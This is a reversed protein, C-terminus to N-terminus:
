CFLYVQVLGRITVGSSPLLSVDASPHNDVRAKSVRRTATGRLSRGVQLHRCPWVTISDLMQDDITFKGNSCAFVPYNLNPSLTCLSKKIASLLVQIRCALGLLVANSVPTRSQSNESQEEIRTLRNVYTYYSNSSHAFLPQVTTKSNTHSGFQSLSSISSVTLVPRFGCRYNWTSDVHFRCSFLAHSTVRARPWLCAATFLPTRRSSYRKQFMLVRIVFKVDHLKWDMEFLRYIDCHELKSDKCDNNSTSISRELLDLGEGRERTHCIM